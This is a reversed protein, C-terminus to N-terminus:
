RQCRPCFVTSRQAQRIEKLAGACNPCPLGARGYVLLEQKFYGPRGDGGVFDKLTTGGQAIAKELVEETISLDPDDRQQEVPEEFPYLGSRTTDLLIGGPLRNVLRQPTDRLAESTADAEDRADVETMESPLEAVVSLSEPHEGLDLGVVSTQNGCCLTTVVLGKDVIQCRSAVGVPDAADARHVSQHTNQRLVM